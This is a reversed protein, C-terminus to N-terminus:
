KGRRLSRVSDVIRICVAALEHWRAGSHLTRPTATDGSRAITQAVVFSDCLTASISERGREGPTAEYFPREYFTSTWEVYVARRDRVVFHGFSKGTEGFLTVDIRRPGLSDSYGVLRGGETSQDRVDASDREFQRLRSRVWGAYRRSEDVIAASDGPCRADSPIPRETLAPSDAVRPARDIRVPKRDNDTATCGFFLLLVILHWAVRVDQTIM